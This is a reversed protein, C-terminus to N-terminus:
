VPAPTEPDRRLHGSSGKSFHQNPSPTTRLHQAALHLGTSTVPGLCCGGTGLIITTDLRAGPRWM